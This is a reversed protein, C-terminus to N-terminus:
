PDCVAVRADKFQKFAGRRKASVFWKEQLIVNTDSFPSQHPGRDAPNDTKTMDDHLCAYACQVTLCCWLWLLSAM